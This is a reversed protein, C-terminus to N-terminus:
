LRHGLRGAPCRSLSILSLSYGEHVMKTIDKVWEFFQVPKSTRLGRTLAIVLGSGRLRKVASSDVSWNEVGV